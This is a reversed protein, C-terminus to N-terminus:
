RCLFLPDWFWFFNDGVRETTVPSPTEFSPSIPMGHLPRGPSGASLMRTNASGGGGGGGRRLEGVQGQLRRRSLRIRAFPSCYLAAARGHGTCLM